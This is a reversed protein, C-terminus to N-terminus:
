ENRIKLCIENWTNVRVHRLVKGWVESVIKGKIVYWVEDDIQWKVERIIWNNVETHFNYVNDM